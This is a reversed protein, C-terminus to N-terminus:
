SYKKTMEKLEKFYEKPRYKKGYRGCVFCLTLAVVIFFPISIYLVLIENLKAAYNANEGV